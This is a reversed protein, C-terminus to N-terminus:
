LCGQNASCIAACRDCLPRTGRTMVLQSMDYGNSLLRQVTRRVAVQAKTIAEARQILPSGGRFLLHNACASLHEASEVPRQRVQEDTVATV